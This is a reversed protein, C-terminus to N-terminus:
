NNHLHEMLREKMERDKREKDTETKVPEVPPSSPPTTHTGGGPESEDEEEQKQKQIHEWLGQKVDDCNLYQGNGIPVSDAAVLDLKGIFDDGIPNTTPPNNNADTIKM